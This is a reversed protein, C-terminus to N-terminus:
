SGARPAEHDAVADVIGPRGVGRGGPRQGHGQVVQGVGRERAENEGVGRDGADHGVRRRGLVGGEQEAVGVVVAEGRGLPQHERGAFGPGELDGAEVARGEVAAVADLGGVEGEGVAGVDVGVDAGEGEGGAAGLLRGSRRGSPRRSWGKARRGQGARRSRVALRSAGPGPGPGWVGRGGVAGGEGGGAGEVAAEEGGGAGRDREDGEGAGAGHRQGGVGGEGGAGVAQGEVRGDAEVAGVGVAAAVAQGGEEVEEVAGGGRGRGEAEGGGAGDVVGRAVAPAGAVEVDRAVEPRGGVHAAEEVDEGPVPHVDEVPVQGVVFAPAELHGAQGGEGGDACGAAGIARQQRLEAVGGGGAGLEVGGGLKAGDDGM